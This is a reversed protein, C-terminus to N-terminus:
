KTPRARLLQLVEALDAELQEIKDQLPAIARRTDVQVAARTRRTIDVIRGRDDDDQEKLAVALREEIWDEDITPLLRRPLRKAAWATETLLELNARYYLAESKSMAADYSDSVIAILINLQIIVVVVLFLVLYTRDAPNPYNDLDYDGIFGLLLLSFITMKVSEFASPAGDDHFGYEEAERQGLYLYFASGFMLTIMLFFVMFVRLDRVIREFMLVFTAFSQNINKLYGFLRLWLLMTTVAALDASLDEGPMAARAFAACACGITAADIWNWYDGRWARPLGLYTVPDHNIPKFINKDFWDDFAKLSKYDEIDKGAYQLGFIVLIVPLFLLCAVFGVLLRPILLAYLALGEVKWEAEDLDWLPSEPSALEIARTSVMQYIERVSFYALIVFAVVIEIIKESPVWKSVDLVEFAAVRTFCGGLFVFLLLEFYLVFIPGDAFKADLVVRFLPSPALEQIAAKSVGRRKLDPLLDDDRVLGLVSPALSKIAKSAKSSDKEENVVKAIAGFINAQRIIADSIGGIKGDVQQVAADFLDGLCDQVRCSRAVVEFEFASACAAFKYAASHLVPRVRIGDWDGSALRGDALTTLCQVSGELKVLRTGDALNWLIISTSGSALRDGDLAALCSVESTHGELKALQTCDTLNWIIISKDRSGSALRGGHLAVLCYVTGMHGELKVLRTGDALNWLIISTDCSGSALRGDALAVLSMVYSTHGELKALQEGDALNWIIIFKDQSGSALRGGIFISDLAALCTVESTHGELRALQTGDALNWIIISKDDGGSALRGGDLVVLSRVWDRHGKLVFTRAPVRSENADADPKKKDLLSTSSRRLLSRLSLPSPLSTPLNNRGSTNFDYKLQAAVQLRQARTAADSKSSPEQLM